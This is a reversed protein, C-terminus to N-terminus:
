WFGADKKIKTDLISSFAKLKECNLIVYARTKKVSTKNHQGNKWEIELKKLIKIM